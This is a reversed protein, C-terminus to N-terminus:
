LPGLKKSKSYKMKTMMTAEYENSGSKVVEIKKTEGNKKYVIFYAVVHVKQRDVKM